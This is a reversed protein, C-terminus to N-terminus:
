TKALGTIGLCKLPRKKSRRPHCVQLIYCARGGGEAVGGEWGWGGSERRATSELLNEHLIGRRSRIDLAMRAPCPSAFIRKTGRLRSNKKEKKGNAASEEDVHM